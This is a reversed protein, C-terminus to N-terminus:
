SGERLALEAKMGDKMEDRCGSSPLRPDQYVASITHLVACTYVSMLQRPTGEQEIM